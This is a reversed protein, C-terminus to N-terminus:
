RQRPDTSEMKMAIALLDSGFGTRGCNNLEEGAGRVLAIEDPTFRRLVRDGVELMIRRAIASISDLQAPVPGGDNWRPITGVHIAWIYDTLRNSDYTVFAM